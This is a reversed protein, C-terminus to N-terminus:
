SLRSLDYLLLIHRGTSCFVFFFAERDTFCIRRLGGRLKTETMPLEPIMRSWWSSTSTSSPWRVSDVKAGPSPSDSATAEAATTQKWTFCQCRSSMADEQQCFILIARMRVDEINPSGSGLKRCHFNIQYFFLYNSRRRRRCCAVPIGKRGAVPIM